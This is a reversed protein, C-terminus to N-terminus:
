FAAEFLSENEVGGRQNLTLALVDFQTGGPPEEAFQDLYEHAARRLLERKKSDVREEPRGASDAASTKVEVFHIRERLEAVIDIEGRRGQFNRELIRFGRRWLSRCALQEGIKGIATDPAEAAPPFGETRRAELVQREEEETLFETTDFTEPM